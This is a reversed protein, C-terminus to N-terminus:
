FYDLRKHGLNLGESSFSFPTELMVASIAVVLM